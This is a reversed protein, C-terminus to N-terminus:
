STLTLLFGALCTLVGARILPCARGRGGWHSGTSGDVCRSPISDFSDPLPEPVAKRHIIPWQHSKDQFLTIVRALVSKFGTFSLVTAGALRHRAGLCCDLLAACTLFLPDVTSGVSGSLGTCLLFSAWPPPKRTTFLTSPSLSALM